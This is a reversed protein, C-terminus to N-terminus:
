RRDPSQGITGREIVEIPLKTERPVQAQMGGILDLLLQAAIAGAEHQPIRVTTLGPPILELLPMDNFGSVSIDEPCAMGITRFHDLAGLALRDNACLVATCSPNAALIEGACRRGEIEDFQRTERVVLDADDLGFEHAAELFAKLRVQGTSLDLPGAIHAIRRHGHRYFLSFIGRIGAEDDSVVSPIESGDVRRNLTVVPLGQRATEVIAPDSRLAGAHIIGDVGRDQLIDLLQRERQACNDTNVIISAYGRPEMVSEIGRVMPPFVANTIDPLVVGVTMTRRTRLGVALHNARYGMEHATRMIREVIEDSLLSRRQPDLARSVTSVHVGAAYAIDKLTTRKNM